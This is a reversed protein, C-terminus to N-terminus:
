LKAILKDLKNDMSQLTTNLNNHQMNCFKCTVYDEEISDARDHLKEIDGKLEARAEARMLTKAIAFAVTAGGGVSLGITQLDM